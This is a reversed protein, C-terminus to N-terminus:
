SFNSSPLNMASPAALSTLKSITFFLIASTKFVSHFDVLSTLNARSLGFGDGSWTSLARSAKALSFLTSRSGGKELPLAWPAVYLHRTFFVFHGNRRIVLPCHSQLLLFFIFALPNLCSLSVMILKLSASSM